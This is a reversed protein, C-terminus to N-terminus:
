NNEYINFHKNQPNQLDNIKISNNNGNFNIKNNNFNNFFNNIICNQYYFNNNNININNHIFNNNIIIRNNNNNIIFPFINLNLQNNSINNNNILNINREKSPKNKNEKKNFNNNAKTKNQMNELFNELYKNILLSKNIFFQNNDNYSNYIIKKSDDINYSLNLIKKILKSCNIYKKKTLDVGYIYRFVNNDFFINNELAVKIISMALTYQNYDCSRKDNTIFDLINICYKLIELINVNEKCFFIGLEFFLILYDYTSYRGLDYNLNQLCLVELYKYNNVNKKIYHFLGNLNTKHKIKDEILLENNLDKELFNHYHYLIDNENKSIIEETLLPLCRENFLAVLLVCISAINEINEIPINKELFIQNLFNISKFYIMSKLGFNKVLNKIKSLGIIKSELYKLNNESNYNAIVSFPKFKMKLPDIGLKNTIRLPLDQSINGKYCLKSCIKCFSIDKKTSSIFVHSHM